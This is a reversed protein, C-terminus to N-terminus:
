QVKLFVLAQDPNFVKYLTRNMPVTELWFKEGKYMGKYRGSQIKDGYNVVNFVDLVRQVYDSAAAPSKVITFLQKPLLWTPTMAGIETQLRRMEYEAFQSFWTDEDPWEILGLALTLSAFTGLEALARKINGKELKSLESWKESMLAFQFGKLDKAFQGMFNFFSRYYGETWDGAQYNYQAKGARRNWAAPMWKRFMYALRMIAHKQSMNMDQKNYIGQLSQNVYKIRNYIEDRDKSTFESGDMKTYGQKVVIKGGLRLDNGKVPVVEMADILDVEKGSSDKMKIKSLMALGSVSSMQHEGARTLFFLTSTNMFRALGKQDMQLEHARGEADQSINFYEILLSLKDTKIRNGINGLLQPLMQTYTKNAKALDKVNYYQGAVAEIMMMVNGTLLNSTGALGNLALNNLSTMRNVFDATKAKDIKSNGFTGEDEKFRGYIQMDMYDNFKALMNSADANKTMKNSFERGFGQITQMIPKGNETMDVVRQKMLDRTLELLHVAQNMENFEVAMSAYAALSSTADTSLDDMNDLKGVFYIPLTMVKNGEFDLLNKTDALGEGGFEIDKERRYLLDKASEKVTNMAGKVSKAGKIREILDKRIQVANYNNRSGQPLFSDLEKKIRMFDNYYDKEAKSLKNYKNSSYINKTPLTDEGIKETNVQYWDYLDKQRGEWQEQTPHVGYKVDLEKKYKDKALEFATYDLEAIYKGTLNGNKDRDHIFDTNKIGADELTKQMAQLEKMYDLTRRISNQKFSDVSHNFLRLMQDSSDAMSDMWRDFFGIDQSSHDLLEELTLTQGKLKGMKMVLSDGVFPRLFDLVLDRSFDRYQVELYTCLDSLENLEKKFETSYQNTKEVDDRVMEEKLEKVSRTYSATFNKITRLMAAMQNTTTAGSNGEGMRVFAAQHSKLEEAANTIFTYLGKAFQKNEIDADLENIYDRQLEDVIGHVARKEAIRRQKIKNQIVNTLIEEQKKVRDELAFLKTQQRSINKLDIKDAMRNALLDQAFEGVEQNVQEIAKQLDQELGKKGNFFQKIADFFRTLLSKYPTNPIPENKIWHKSVLQGLAEKALLFRDGEYQADYADYATGLVEEVMGEQGLLNILRKVVPHNDGLLEIFAHAFEEPIAKQGREDRSVRITELLGDVTKKATLTDMVGNIGMQEEVETLFGDSIGYQKGLERLKTNLAINVDQDKELNRQSYLVTAYPDDKGEIVKIHRKGNTALNSKMHYSLALPNNPNNFRKVIERANEMTYNKVKNNSGYRGWQHDLEDIYSEQSQLEMMVKVPGLLFEGNEDVPLVEKYGDIKAPDVLGKYIQTAREYTTSQLLGRNLRSEIKNGNRDTITMITICSEGM